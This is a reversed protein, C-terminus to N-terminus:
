LIIPVLFGLRIVLPGINILNVRNMGSEMNPSVSFPSGQM